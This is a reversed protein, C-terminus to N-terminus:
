EHDADHFVLLPVESHLVLKQALSPSLIKSFMGREHTTLALVDVAEHHVFKQLAEAVDDGELLTYELKQNPANQQLKERLQKLKERDERPNKNDSIHVCYILPQFPELIRQLQMISKSDTKSFDTAYAVKRLHAGQYAVPITLVPVKLEQVVKTTVTGFFSRAINSEGKTGMVVLDPKFRKAEESIKEEPLGHIFTREIYVQSGMQHAERQLQGYLEELQDQAEEENRYIVRETIEESATTPVPTLIDPEADALYDQFCHLLLLQAQQSAVALHLAYLSAEESEDSFDVPILIKLM